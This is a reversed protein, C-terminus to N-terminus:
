AELSIDIFHRPPHSSVKLPLSLHYVPYLNYRSFMLTNANQENLEISVYGSGCQCVTNNTVNRRDISTRFLDVVVAIGFYSVPAVNLEPQSRRFKTM